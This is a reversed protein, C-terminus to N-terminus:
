KNRKTRNMKKKRVEGSRTKRKRKKESATGGERKIESDLKETIKTQISEVDISKEPKPDEQREIIIKLIKLAEKINEIDPKNKIQHHNTPEDKTKNLLLGLVKELYEITGNNKKEMEDKEESEKEHKEVDEKLSLYKLTIEELAKKLEGKKGSSSQAYQEILENVQDSGPPEPYGSGAQSIQPQSLTFKGNKFTVIYDIHEENM